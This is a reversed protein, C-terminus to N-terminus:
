KFHKYDPKLRLDAEDVFFGTEENEFEEDYEEDGEEYEEEDEYEEEHAYSVYSTQSQATNRASFSAM